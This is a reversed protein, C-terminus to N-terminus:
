IKDVALGNKLFFPKNCFEMSDFNAHAIPLADSILIIKDDPKIKLTLEVVEKQVHMMDAILETSIRDDHLASVVTSPEKHNFSFMANYLNTVQSFNSLDSGM